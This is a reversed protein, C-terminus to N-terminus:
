LTAAYTRLHLAAAELKRKSELRAAVAAWKRLGLKELGQKLLEEDTQITTPMANLQEVCRKELEAVSKREWQVEEESMQLVAMAEAVSGKPISRLNGGGLSLLTVVKRRDAIGKEGEAALLTSSSWAGSLEFQGGRPGPKVGGEMGMVAMFRTANVSPQPPSSSTKSSSSSSSNSGEGGSSGGVQQPASSFDIRDCLNGQVFFGCDRLMEPNSKHICGYSICVEQGQPIETLSVLQFADQETNYRYEANPAPSHNAFDAAPVMLTVVEKGITESFCRSNVM